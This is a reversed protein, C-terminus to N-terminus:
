VGGGSGVVYDIVGASPLEHRYGAVQDRRGITKDTWESWCAMLSPPTEPPPAYKQSALLYAPRHHQSGGQKEIAAQSGNNKHRGYRLPSRALTEDRRMQLSTLRSVLRIKEIGSSLEYVNLLAEYSAQAIEAEETLKAIESPM